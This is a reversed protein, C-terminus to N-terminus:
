VVKGGHRYSRTENYKMKVELCYEIDVELHSMLDLIRILADALEIPMGEPKTGDQYLVKAGGDNTYIRLANGNRYEELAESIESHILALKEPINVQGEWWGKSVATEHMKEALSNLKNRFHNSM